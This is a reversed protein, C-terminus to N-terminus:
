ADYRYDITVDKYKGSTDKVNSIGRYRLLRKTPLHYHTDVHPAFLRLFWNDIDLRITIIEGEIKRKRIRFKYDDLQAPLVMRVQLIEGTAISALHNVIFHHFGQGVIQNSVRPINKKQVESDQNKQSYIQIHDDEVRAGNKHGARTDTFDYSGYQYGASYESKLEGITRDQPDFYQTLSSVVRNDQYTIEHREMYELNGDKNRAMGTFNQITMSAAADM